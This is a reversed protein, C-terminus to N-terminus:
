SSVAYCSVGTDEPVCPTTDSGDFGGTWCEIRSEGDVDIQVMHNGPNELTAGMKSSNKQADVAYAYPRSSSPDESLEFIYNPVLEDLSEPYANHEDFYIEAALQLQRIDGIRRRDRQEIAPDVFM